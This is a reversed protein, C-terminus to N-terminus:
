AGHPSQRWLPYRIGQECAREPRGDQGPRAVTVGVPPLAEATTTVELATASRVFGLGGM